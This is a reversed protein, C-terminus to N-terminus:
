VSTVDGAAPENKERPYFRVRTMNGLFQSARWKPSKKKMDIFKFCSQSNCLVSVTSEKWLNSIFM